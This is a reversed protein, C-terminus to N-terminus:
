IGIVEESWRSEETVCAYLLFSCSMNISCTSYALHKTDTVKNCGWLYIFGSSNNKGAKCIFFSLESFTSYSTWPCFNPHLLNLIQVWSQGILFGTSRVEVQATTLFIHRNSTHSMLPWIYPSVHGLYYLTLFSPSVCLKLSSNVLIPMLWKQM